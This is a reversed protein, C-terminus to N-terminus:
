AHGHRTLHATVRAIQAAQEPTARGTPQGCEPCLGSQPTGTLDYRCHRGRSPRTAPILRRHPLRIKPIEALLWLAAFFLLLACVGYLGRLHSTLFSPGDRAQSVFAFAGAAVLPTAFGALSRRKIPLLLALALLVGGCAFTVGAALRARREFDAISAPIPPPLPPPPPSVNWKIMRGKDDQALVELEWQPISNSRAISFNLQFLFSFEMGTQLDRYNRYAQEHQDVLATSFSAPEEPEPSWLGVGVLVAKPYAVSLEAEVRTVSHDRQRECFSNADQVQASHLLIRQRYADTAPGLASLDHARRYAAVACALVPAM